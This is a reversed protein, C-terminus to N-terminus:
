FEWDTFDRHWVTKLKWDFLGSWEWRYWIETGRQTRIVPKRFHPVNVIKNRVTNRRILHNKYMLREVAGPAM